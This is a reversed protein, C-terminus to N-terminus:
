IRVRTKSLPCNCPKFLVGIAAIWPNSIMQSNPWLLAGLCIYGTISQSGDSHAYFYIENVLAMYTSAFLVQPMSLLM